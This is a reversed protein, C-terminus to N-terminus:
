AVGILPTDKLEQLDEKLKELVSDRFYLRDEDASTHRHISFSVGPPSTMHIIDILLPLKTVLADKMQINREYIKIKYSNEVATTRDGLTELQLEQHPASWAKVVQFDMKKMTKHLYGQYKELVVFDYGKIQLDLLEYYGVKPKMEELYAPEHLIKGVNSSSNRSCTESILRKIPELGSLRKISQNMASNFM